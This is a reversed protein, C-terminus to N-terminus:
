MFKIIKSRSKPVLMICDCFVVIIPVFQQRCSISDISCNKLM